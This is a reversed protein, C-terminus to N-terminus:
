RAMSFSISLQNKAIECLDDNRTKTETLSLMFKRKMRTRM